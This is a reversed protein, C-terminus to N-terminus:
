QKVKKIKKKPHILIEGRWTAVSINNRNRRDLIRNAAEITKVNHFGESQPRGCWIKQKGLEHKWNITLTNKM